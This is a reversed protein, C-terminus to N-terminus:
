GHKHYSKKYRYLLTLASGVESSQAPAWCRRYFTLVELRQIDENTFKPSAATKRQLFFCAYGVKLLSCVSVNLIKRIRRFIVELYHWIWKYFSLITGVQWNTQIYYKGPLIKCIFLWTYPLKACRQPNWTFSENWLSTGTRFCTYVM